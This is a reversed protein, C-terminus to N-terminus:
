LVDSPILSLAELGREHSALAAELAKGGAMKAFARAHFREQPLIRAFVARIDAPTEPDAVIVEIRALRMAEAHAAVAAGSEFDVIGGLTADWYRETKVLVQPEGGRARLLDAVWEGHAREQGAIVGLVRHDRTGPTAHTDRFRMIREAATAEGHYQAVLWHLLSAADGKVGNWWRESAQRVLLNTHDM